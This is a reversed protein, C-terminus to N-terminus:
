KENIRFNIIKFYLDRNDGPAQLEKANTYLKIIHKGRTLYINRSYLIPNSSISINDQFLDGGLQLRADEAVGTAVEFSINVNKSGRQNFITISSTNNSWRFINNNELEEDYFGESFQYNIIGLPPLSDLYHTVTITYLDINYDNVQTRVLPNTELERYVPFYNIKNDAGYIIQYNKYKSLTFLIFSNSLIRKSDSDIKNIKAFVMFQNPDKVEQSFGLFYLPLKNTFINNLKEESNIIKINKGTKSNIYDSWYSETSEKLIINTTYKHLTPAYIISNRPIRLFDDTNIFKDISKWVNFIQSQNLTYAYNSYDTIVSIRFVALSILIYLIILAIKNKFINIILFMISAILLTMGFFSFFTPTFTIQNLEIVWRQYKSVFSQPLVPLFIFFLSVFILFLLTKNKIKKYSILLTFCVLSSILGKILWKVQINKLIYAFNLLARDYNYSFKLIEGLSHRYIYTPFSAIAFQFSTKLIKYIDFNFSHTGDYVGPYIIRFIIYVTLFPLLLAIHYLLKQFSTKIKNTLSKGKLFFLLILFFILFYLIFIEYNFLSLFFLISSAILKWNIKTELYDILLIMSSFSLNLGFSFTFPYSTLLNHQWSNQLFTILFLFIILSFSKSKSIKYILFSFLIFNLVIQGLSIIKLIIIKKIFLFPLLSILFTFFYQFRSQSEAIGKARIFINEKPNILTLYSSADDATTFGVKLLPFFTIIVLIFLLFFIFFNKNIKLNNM